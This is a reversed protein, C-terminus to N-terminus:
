CRRLHSSIHAATDFAACHRRWIASGSRSMRFVSLPFQLTGPQFGACWVRHWYHPSCTVTPLPLRRFLACKAAVVPWRRAITAVM